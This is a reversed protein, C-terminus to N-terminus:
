SQLILELYVVDPLPNYYYPAASRFGLSRYLALAARMGALTDLVMRRYGLSRALAVLELALRRGLGSGRAAERVYLRKMECVQADLRRVGGCALWDADRRALLLGGTPAGYMEPLQELERAFGQFCLDIGLQASYEEFLVRAAAYDDAGTAAFIIGTAANKADRSM